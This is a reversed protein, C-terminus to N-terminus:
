GTSRTPCAPRTSCSSRTTAGSSRPSWEGSDISRGAPLVAVHVFGLVLCVRLVVIRRLLQGGLAAPAALLFRGLVLGVALDEVVVLVGVRWTREAGASAAFAACHSLRDCLPSRRRLEVGGNPNRSATGSVFGIPFSTIRRREGRLSNTRLASSASAGATRSSAVAPEADAAVFNSEIM